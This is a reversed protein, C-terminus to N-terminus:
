REGEPMVVANRFTTHNHAHEVAGACLGWAAPASTWGFQLCRDVVVVDEFVYGVVPSQNVDVSVRRFAGATDAKALLIRPPHGQWGRVQFASIFDDM